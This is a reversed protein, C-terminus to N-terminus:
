ISSKAVSTLNYESYYIDDRGEKMIWKLRFVWTDKIDRNKKEREESLSRVQVM